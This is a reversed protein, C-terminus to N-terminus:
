LVLSVMTAVTLDIVILLYTHAFLCPRDHPVSSPGATGVWGIVCEIGETFTSQLSCSGPFVLASARMLNDEPEGGRQTLCPCLLVHSCHSLSPRPEQLVRSCHSLSPRATDRGVRRAEMMMGPSPCEHEGPFSSCSAAPKWICPQM